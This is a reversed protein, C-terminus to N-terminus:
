CVVTKPSPCVEKLYSVNQIWDQKLDYFEKEKLDWQQAQKDARQKLEMGFLQTVVGNEGMYDH